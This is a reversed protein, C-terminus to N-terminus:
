AQVKQITVGISTTVFEMLRLKLHPDPNYPPLDIHQDVVTSGLHLNLPAVRHGQSSLRQFLREIDCKRYISLSPSEITKDNSSINFETTHVAIGGPRLTSLSAEIFEIGKELSGLHELACTSWCLDFDRLDKPIANMDVPRFAVRKRLEDFPLIAPHDLAQLTGAHQDTTTWKALESADHPLDTALVSLGLKALLAPVPERGVGFGIARAGAQLAGSAELVSLIYCFEWVKRHRHPFLNLARCWRWFEPQTFQAATCLQSMPVKLTPPEFRWPVNSEEPPAIMFLPLRYGDASEIRQLFSRFESTQVFAMRLSDWSSHTSHLIIEDESQPERGLFLRIAWAAADRRDQVHDFKIPRAWDAGNDDRTSM